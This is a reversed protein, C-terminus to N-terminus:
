ADQIPGIPAVVTCQVTFVSGTLNSALLVQGTATGGFKLAFTMTVTSGNVLANQTPSGANNFILTFTSGADIINAQVDPATSTTPQDALTIGGVQYQNDHRYLPLSEGAMDIDTM